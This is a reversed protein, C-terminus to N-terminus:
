DARFASDRVISELKAVIYADHQRGAHDRLERMIADHSRPHGYTRMRAMADYADAVAVIRSVVSIGEGALRDPYGTGDIREHHQRVARAVDGDDDLEAALVIRESREAHTRMLVWEEDTLPGAKKLVADPIGVKGVDHFAAALVVQTLERTILSCARGLEFALGSVRDCHAETPADREHVTVFVAAAKVAATAYARGIEDM